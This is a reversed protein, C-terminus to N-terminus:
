TASLQFALYYYMLIWSLVNIICVFLFKIAIEVKEWYKILNLAMFGVIICLEHMSEEVPRCHWYKALLQITKCWCETFTLLVDVNEIYM